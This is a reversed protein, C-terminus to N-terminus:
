AFSLFKSLHLWVLLSALEFSFCLAGKFRFNFPPKLLVFTFTDRFRSLVILTFSFNSKKYAVSWLILHKLVNFLYFVFIFCLLCHRSLSTLASVKIKLKSWGFLDYIVRLLVSYVLFFFFFVRYVPM